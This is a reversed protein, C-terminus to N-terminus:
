FGSTDSVPPPEYPQENELQGNAAMEEDIQRSIHATLTLCNMVTDPKINLDKKAQKYFTPFENKLSHLAKYEPTYSIPMDAPPTQEKEEPVPQATKPPDSAVKAKLKDKLTEPAAGPDAQFWDVPSSMGDKLSNYVKRLQVLQAPTITEFRRQIRSELQDKTVSFKGFADLVKQLAAPSTDAKAKLTEECQETAAELIDAPVLSLICARLRRAGFNALNEYRERPDNIAYNGKKTSREHKVTFIKSQRVNTEYDTAYAELVSEDYRSELERLGCSGNGWLRFITEALRISAGTIATGGKSYSYLASEALAPRQCALLIKDLVEMENRPFRKAVMIAAQAETVERSSAIQALVSDNKQPLQETTAVEYM